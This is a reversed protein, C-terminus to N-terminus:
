FVNKYENFSKTLPDIEVKNQEEEEYKEDELM